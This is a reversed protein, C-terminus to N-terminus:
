LEARSVQNGFRDNVWTELTGWQTSLRVVEHISEIRLSDMRCNEKDLNVKKSAMLPSVNEFVHQIDKIKYSHHPALNVIQNKLTSNRTLNLMNRTYDEYLGYQRESEWSCRIKIPEDGKSHVLNTLRTILGTKGERYRSGYVNALRFVFYSHTNKPLMSIQHEEQIKNWGYKTTPRPPSLENKPAGSSEYVAGGSSIYVHDIKGKIQNAFELYANFERAYGSFETEDSRSSGQAWVVVTSEANSSHTYRDILSSNPIRTVVSEQAKLQNEFEIAFRTDGFVLYQTAM